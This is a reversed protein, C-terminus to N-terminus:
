ISCACATAARAFAMCPMSYALQGADGNRATSCSSTRREPASSRMALFSSALDVGLSFALAATMTRDPSARARWRADGGKVICARFHCPRASAATSYFAIAVGILAAKSLAKM